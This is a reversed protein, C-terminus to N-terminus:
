VNATQCHYILWLHFCYFNIEPPLTPLFIALFTTAMAVVPSAGAAAAAAGATVGVDASSAGDSTSVVSSRFVMWSATLFLSNSEEKKQCIQLM